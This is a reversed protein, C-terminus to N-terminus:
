QVRGLMGETRGFAELIFARFHSRKNPRWDKNIDTNYGGREERCSHFLDGGGWGM